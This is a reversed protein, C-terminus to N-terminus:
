AAIPLAAQRELTEIERYLSRLRQGLRGEMRMAEALYNDWATQSWDSRDAPLRRKRCTRSAAQECALIIETELQQAQEKRM